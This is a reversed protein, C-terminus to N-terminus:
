FGSPYIRRDVFSLNYCLERKARIATEDIAIVDKCSSCWMKYPKFSIEQEILRLSKYASKELEAPLTNHITDIDINNQKSYYNEEVDWMMDALSMFAEEIVCPNQSEYFAM